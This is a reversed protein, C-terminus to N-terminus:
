KRGDRNWLWVAVGAAPSAWLAAVAILVELEQVAPYLEPNEACLYVLIMLIGLLFIGYVARTQARSLPRRAQQLGSDEGALGERLLSHDPLSTAPAGLDLNQLLESLWPAALKVAQESLKQNRVMLGVAAASFAQASEVQPAALKAVQEWLKQNRVMLGVAAASAQESVKQNRVMLGVAATSAQELVKQNRVMLGVAAASASAFAQTTALAHPAAARAVQESLKMGELAPAISEALRASFVTGITNTTM